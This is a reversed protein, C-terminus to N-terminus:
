LIQCAGLLGDTKSHLDTVRCSAGHLILVGQPQFPRYERCCAPAYFVVDPHLSALSLGPWLTEECLIDISTERMTM